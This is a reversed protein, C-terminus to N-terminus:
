GSQARPVHYLSGVAGCVYKGVAEGEFHPATRGEVGCVAEQVFGRPLTQAPQTLLDGVDGELHQQSAGVEDAVCAVGVVKDTGEDCLRCLLADVNETHEVGEVPQRVHLDCHVLYQTLALQKLTGHAVRAVNEVGCLILVREFVVDIECLLKFLSASM